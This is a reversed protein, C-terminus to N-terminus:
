AVRRRRQARNWVRLGDAGRDELVHVAAGPQGRLCAGLVVGAANEFKETSGRLDM